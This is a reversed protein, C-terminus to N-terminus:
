VLIGMFSQHSTVGHWALALSMVIDDHLGSPASYKRTGSSGTEMGYARLENIQIKDNFLKIDGGEIAISLSEILNPKSKATTTFEIIPLGLRHLEEIFPIGTNNTEVVIGQPKWRDAHAKLRKRQFIYDIQNFRDLLVQQSCDKCFATIVSFDTQKALDVGFYVQHNKHEKYATDEKSLTCVKKINRFVSMGDDIFEALWEQKFVYSPSTLRNDEIEEATLYPNDSSPKEFVAWKDDDGAQVYLNYFWNKANPTSIFLAWGLNDALSPKIDAIWLEDSRIRAAEDFVVGKLGQGRLNDPNDASKFVIESTGGTKLQLIVKRDGEKIQVYQPDILRVLQKFLSFGLDAVTYTPAVWWYIGKSTLAKVLLILCALRTKGWRRGAVIITFRKLGKFVELQSPHLLKEINLKVM